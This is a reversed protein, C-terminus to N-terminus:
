SFGSFLSVVHANSMSVSTSSFSLRRTLAVKGRMVGTMAFAPSKRGKAVAQPSEAASAPQDEDVDRLRGRLGGHARAVRFCEVRGPLPASRSLAAPRPGSPGRPVSKRHSSWRCPPTRGGRDRACRRGIVRGECGDGMRGARGNRVPVWSDRLARQDFIGPTVRGTMLLAFVVLWSGCVWHMKPQDPGPSPRPGHRRQFPEIGTSNARRFQTLDM